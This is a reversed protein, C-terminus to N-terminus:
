VAHAIGTAASRRSGSAASADRRRHAANTTPPESATKATMSTGNRKMLRASRTEIECARRAAPKRGKANANAPPSPTSDRM